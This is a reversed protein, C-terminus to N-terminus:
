VFHSIAELVPINESLVSDLHEPQDLRKCYPYLKNVCVFFPHLITLNVNTNMNQLYSHWVDAINCVHIGSVNVTYWELM